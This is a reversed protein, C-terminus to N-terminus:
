NWCGQRDRLYKVLREKQETTLTSHFKTLKDIMLSSFEDMRAKKENIMKKLKEQDITDSQLLALFEEKRSAHNKKMEAMKNKLEEKIGELEQQQAANLELKSKLKETVRDVMKEPAPRHCGSLFVVCILLIPVCIGAAYKKLM